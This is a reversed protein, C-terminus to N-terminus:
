NKEHYSTMRALARYMYKYEQALAEKYLEKKDM